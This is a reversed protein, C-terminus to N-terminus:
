LGGKKVFLVKHLELSPGKPFTELLKGFPGPQVIVVLAPSSPKRRGSFAKM